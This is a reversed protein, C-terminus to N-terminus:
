ALAYWASTIAIRLASSYESFQSGTRMVEISRSVSELAAREAQTALLFAEFVMPPFCIKRLSVEIIILRKQIALWRSCTRGLVKLDLLSVM